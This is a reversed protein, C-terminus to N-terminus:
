NLDQTFRLMGYLGLLEACTCKLKTPNDSSIRREDFVLHLAKSKTATQHPFSWEGTLFTQLDRRSVGHYASAVLLGEVENVLVGGQLM